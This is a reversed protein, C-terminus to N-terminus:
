SRVQLTVLSLAHVLSAGVKTNTGEVGAGEDVEWFNSSDESNLGEFCFVFM